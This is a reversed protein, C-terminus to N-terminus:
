IKGLKFYYRVPCNPNFQFTNKMTKLHGIAPLPVCSSNKTRVCWLGTLGNTDGSKRARLFTRFPKCYELLSKSSM